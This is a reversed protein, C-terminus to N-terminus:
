NTLTNLLEGVDAIPPLCKVGHCVWANVGAAAPKDLAPPLGQIAPPITLVLAHPLYRMDLERQWARAGDGRLIVVSPPALQEALATCLSTHASLIVGTSIYQKTTVVNGATGNGTSAGTTQGLSPLTLAVVLGLVAGAVGISIRKM